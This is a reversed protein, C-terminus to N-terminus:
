TTALGCDDTAKASLMYSGAAVNRWFFKFPATTLEGLKNSGEFFEVKSVTGDVDTANADIVIASGAVYSPTSATPSTISISPAGNVSINIPLSVNTANDNDTAKATLVHPGAAVNAWTFSYPSSTDTGILIGDGYFEVKSITGDSDAASAALNISAPANGALGAGPATMTVTPLANVKINVASSTTVGSNNDTAKATLVHPGAAVNQWTFSYPSSTDTGILIGDGYFEVKSITGDSDSAIANIQITAPSNYVTNSAPSTISVSPPANVTVTINVNTTTDGFWEVGDQVM